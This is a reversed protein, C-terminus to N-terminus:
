GKSSARDAGAKDHRYERWKALVKLGNPDTMKQKSFQGEIKLTLLVSSPNHGRRQEVSV